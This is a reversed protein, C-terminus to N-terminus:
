SADGLNTLQAYGFSGINPATQSVLVEGEVEIQGFEDSIPNIAASPIFSVNHWYFDWKPGVDNASIFKLSGAVADQDFLQVTPGGVALEDVTGLVALALNIPTWEDLTITLTGGRSIVVTLDKEKTGQLSSFHELKEINPTFESGPSNGMHVYDAAGERKFWFAGKGIRYNGTNPSVLTPEPM